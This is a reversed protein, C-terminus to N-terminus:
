SRVARKFMSSVLNMSSPKIVRIQRLSENEMQYYDLNTIKLAISNWGDKTRYDVFEGGVDVYHHASLYENQVNLITATQTVAGSYDSIVDDPAFQVESTSEIVIQGLSTDTRVIKGTAGSASEVTMDKAFMDIDDRTELTINPFDEMAKDVIARKSLPWGQDRLDDNMIFFSWHLGSNKYLRHAVNDPRDGDQIYYDQYFASNEKLQDVIDVYVALNQMVANDGNAFRYLEKPFDTFYAM